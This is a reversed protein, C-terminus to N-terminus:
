SKQDDPRQEDAEAFLKKLSLRFGPLVTGGDLFGCAPIEKAKTASTYARATRTGPPRGM